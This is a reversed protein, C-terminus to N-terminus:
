EKSESGDNQNHLFQLANEAYRRVLYIPMHCLRGVFRL